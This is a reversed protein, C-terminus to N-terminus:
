QRFRGKQRRWVTFRFLRGSVFYLLALAIAVSIIYIMMRNRNEKDSAAREMAQIRQQLSANQEQLGRNQAILQESSQMVEALKDKQEMLKQKQEELQQKTNLYEQQIKDFNEPLQYIDKARDLFGAQVVSVPLLIGIVVLIPLLAQTVIFSCRVAPYGRNNKM